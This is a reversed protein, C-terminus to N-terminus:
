MKFYNGICNIIDSPTLGYGHIKYADDGALGHVYSALIAANYENYGQAILSAIIGTLVDGSGGVAMGPNGSTNIYINNGNTVITSSGKLLVLCKYERAFDVAVDVRNENIYEISYGTLRSMEGPHPTLVCKASTTKLSEKISCLANLGDADIIIYKKSSILMNQLYMTAKEYRGMGVGFAVVDSSNIIEKIAEDTLDIFGDKEELINFTVEPINSGVRDVITKPVACSILGAGSRIAGSACLVVAGSMSKCGGLITVKGASGKNADQLRNKLLSLPYKGYNTVSKINQKEICELPISIDDVYVKGSAERGKSLLMGKKIAGFTITEDAIIYTNGNGNDSDIGSPIDISITYNSFKNVVDIIDKYIGKVDGTIGTGFIGDITIDSNKVSNELEKINYKIEINMKLLIDLNIKADGKISSLDSFCFISVKYGKVCLLRSLALGDGGNNGKGCVICINKPNHVVVKDYMARAANEMLIISPIGYKDMARKGIQRMEEAFAAYM